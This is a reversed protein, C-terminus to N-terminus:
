KEVNIRNATLSEWLVDRASLERRAKEDQARSKVANPFKGPRRYKGFLELIKRM